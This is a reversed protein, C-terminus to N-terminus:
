GAHLLAHDSILFQCACQQLGHTAENAVAQNRGFCADFGFVHDRAFQDVLDPFEPQEAQGNGFGVATKSQGHFLFHQHCQFEAVRRRGKTGDDACVVSDSRLADDDVPRLSLLAIPQGSNRSALCDARERQGFRVDARVPETCVVSLRLPSRYTRFPVFRKM